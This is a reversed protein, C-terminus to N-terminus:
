QPLLEFEFIEPQCGQLMGDRALFSSQEPESLTIDRCLKEVNMGVCSLTSVMEVGELVTVLHHDCFILISPYCKFKKLLDKPCRRYSGIGNVKL